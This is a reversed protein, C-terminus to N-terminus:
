RCRNKLVPTCWWAVKLSCWQLFCSLIRLRPLVPIPFDGLQAIPKDPQRQAMPWPKTAVGLFISCFFFWVLSSDIWTSVVLWKIPIDIDWLWGNNLYQCVCVLLVNYYLTRSMGGKELSSNWVMKVLWEGTPKSYGQEITLFVHKWCREVTLM